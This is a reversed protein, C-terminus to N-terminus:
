PDSEHIQRRHYESLQAFKPDRRAKDAFVEALLAHTAQHKPDYYLVSNLWVLGQNESVHALLVRGVNYRAEVDDPHAQLDDFSREIGALDAKATRVRRFQEEADSKQGLRELALGFQYRTKWDKPNAELAAELWKVANQPHNDALELQGLEAPILGAASDRPEGLDTFTQTVADPSGDLASELVSKAEAIRGLERLCRAMGLRAPQPCTLLAACRGYTDLAEDWKQLSMLARGLNYAAPAYAPGLQLARRYEDAAGSHNGGHELIRGLLLHPQPDEPFDKTWGDIIVRADRFQYNLVCGNAYAEYIEAGDATSSNLLALLESEVEQLRGSQAKSFVVERDIEGRPYGLELARDLLKSARDLQGQKRAVRGLLFETRASHTDFVAARALWRRAAEWNRAAMATEARM